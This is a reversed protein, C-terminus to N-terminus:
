ARPRPRWSRWMKGAELVDFYEKVLDGNKVYGKTTEANKADQTIADRILLAAREHLGRESYMRSMMRMWLTETPEATMADKM